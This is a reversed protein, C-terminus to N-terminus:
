TLLATLEDTLNSIIAPKDLFTCKGQFNNDKETFDSSRVSLFVVPIDKYKGNYVSWTKEALIIGTSMGNEMRDIENPTFLTTDSPVPAMVDIILISFDEHYLEKFFDEANSVYTVDWDYLELLSVLSKSISPEDDFFLIKKDTAM